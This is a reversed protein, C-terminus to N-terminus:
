FGRRHTSPHMTDFKVAGRSGNVWYVLMSPFPANAGPAAADPQVFNFRGKIFVIEHATPVVIDHFWKTDTRAPILAVIEDCDTYQIEDAAKAM